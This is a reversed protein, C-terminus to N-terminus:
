PATPICIQFVAGGDPHNHASIQGDMMECFRKSIALGLGTGAYKRNYAGEEQAFPEFLNEIGNIPLGIGTDRVRTIDKLHEDQFGIDEIDELAMESYGIIANLPTRLEHSM